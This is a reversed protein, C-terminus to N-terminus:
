IKIDRQIYYNKKLVVDLGKVMAQEIKIDRQINIIKKLVVDLGKVMPQGLKIHRKINIDKETPKVTIELPNGLLCKFHNKRCRLVKM